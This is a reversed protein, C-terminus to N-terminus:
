RAGEDPQPEELVRLAQAFQLDEIASRLRRWRAEGWATRLPGSLARFSELAALDQRRLQVALQALRTADPATVDAATRGAQAEERRAVAALFPQASRELRRLQRSLRVMAERLADEGGKRLASEAQAAAESLDRAGIMGAAGKLKHLAAALLPGAPAAADALPGFERLVRGLLSALLAPDDGIRSVADDHDLGDIHAISPELSDDAPQPVPAAADVLASEGQEAEAAQSAALRGAPPPEGGSLPAGRAAEVHRRLTRILEDPDLPKAVFDNMGADLARQRETTLVGATLAIVVLGQLAPERRLRRTTEHGDMVPMQLDMLVVDFGSGPAALAALAQAGGECCVVAAGERALIREAVERNIDSDDVVLVRVGGLRPEARQPNTPASGAAQVGWSLLGQPGPPATGGDAQAGPADVAPLALEFWFESGQGPRSSVGVTGGMLQVLHRVISLGLGTGGYRRNIAADAQVFPQFLRAQAAPEIGIGTDRVMFRLRQLGPAPLSSEGGDPAPAPVPALDDLRLVELEVHGQDTFKIANSLLNTLVQRLRTPDTMVQSPLGPGLNLRLALGKSRAQSELLAAAERLLRPLDVAMQELSLEGAEIKAVDLMANLLSMLARSALQIRDLFHRQEANLPTGELLHSLGILANLPTRIEHSMHALFASKAESAAEAARRAEVAAAAEHQMTIDQIAGVLRVPGAQPGDAAYEAEGITRVWIHRGAATVFPLELDWGEGSDVARQVAAQLVSRAQPEFFNMAGDYPPPDRDTWDHIARTGRTWTLTRTTLDLQWGGVAALRSARELFAESEALRRRSENLESVDHVLVYFGRVEGDVFDPLYHALSHRWGRGDPRAISREFSQPEGALVGEIYRRNLEFLAEGLLDRIHRGRLGGPDVGFWRHYARNAFRNHLSRDWYGIMSPVADLITQLDRHATALEETRAAVQRELAANFQQLAREARKREGIDRITKGVGELQGDAGTIPAWTVSVEVESQDCRLYVEDHSGLAEGRALATMRRREAARRDSPLLLEGPMGVAQEATWGFIQEAARNWSTVRGDLAETVIADSSNAVLNAMRVSHARMLRKRGRNTSQAYSLAALLLSVTAGVGGVTWPSTQGLRAVFLPTAQVEVQWQRGFVDRRTQLSRVTPGPIRDGADFLRLPAVAPGSDAESGQAAAGVDDLVIRFEGDRLDIAHLVEDIVVPTYAWGFAARERAQPTDLPQGPGYIPLLILFSHQPRRIAQVLTIPRTVSARGSRMAREAAERRDVQSAIDLGVAARNREVPEIFQIVFREGEHPEFQQVAFDPWGDRRAAAVFEAEQAQPVRRIYGFGRAGPFEADIDRSEHYARFRRRTIGDRGATIIAGRAGRLGYEYRHIREVLQDATDETLSTLQREVQDANRASQERVAVASVLLGVALVAGAQLLARRMIRREPM